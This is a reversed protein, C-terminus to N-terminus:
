EVMVDIDVLVIGFVKIGIFSKIGILFMDICNCILLVWLNVLGLLRVINDLEEIIKDMMMGLRWQEQLKFQIIMEVMELLVFDIVIEVKGIKGFVWVVEFVSM